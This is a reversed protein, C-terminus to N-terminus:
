QEALIVYPEELTGKGDARVRRSLSIVPRFFLKTSELTDNQLVGDKSVSVFYMKGDEKKSPTMTWWSSQYNGKLYSDSSVGTSALAFNVEDATILAIKLPLSTGNCSYTSLQEVFLRYSPLYTIINEEENLVSNDFCYPTSAIYRDYEQLHINYFDQLLSYHHSEEFSENGVQEEDNFSEMSDLTSDLVLKVSKDPNIRVVRWLYNAFSVYNNVVNGKFYYTKGEQENKQILGDEEGNEKVENSSLLIGSFSGDIEQYITDLYFSVDQHSPNQIRLIYRKTEGSLVKASLLTGAKLPGSAKLEYHEDLLEFTVGSIPDKMDKIEIFYNKEETGLNTISFDYELRDEHTVIHKGKTYNISLGELVEVVSTDEVKGKLYLQYDYEVYSCFLIALFLFFLIVKRMM